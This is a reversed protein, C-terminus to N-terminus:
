ESRINMALAAIEGFTTPGGCTIAAVAIGSLVNLSTLFFIYGIDPFQAGPLDITRAELAMRLILMCESELASSVVLFIDTAQGAVAFVV